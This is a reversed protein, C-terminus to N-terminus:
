LILQTFVSGQAGVHRLCVFIRSKSVTRVVLTVLGAAELDTLTFVYRLGYM